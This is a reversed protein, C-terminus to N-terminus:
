SPRIKGSGHRERQFSRMFGILGLASLTAVLLGSVTMVLKYALNGVRATHLPYAANFLREHWPLVQNDIRVDMYGGSAEIYVKNLGQPNLEGRQQLGVIRSGSEFNAFQASRITSGPFSKLSRQLVPLWDGSDPGSITDLHEGFAEGYNEPRLPELMLRQAQDPFALLVGTVLSLLLPTAVIIGLNRHASRLHRVAGSRPWLGDRFGRRMPWFSAVGAILLIIMAMAACGVIALGTNELLLRHHLDYILEEWRGNSSWEAVVNGRVDVYAYRSDNLTVRGLPMASTPFDIQRLNAAGFHTEVTQAITALSEVSPEYEVRAEPIALRLYDLRWVLLAGTFSVLLMLLALTAGGWAHVARLIKLTM